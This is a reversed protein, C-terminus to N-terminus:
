SKLVLPEGKVIEFYGRLAKELVPHRFLSREPIDGMLLEVVVFLKHVAQYFGPALKPAPARRIAQQLNTHAATYDLQVAKIRGLYYHYRAYQSNPASAPFTTKSILKDAQDYLSYHLYSRLLRNILSAQTEDDHRLSATRQAALFLSSSFAATLLLFASRRFVCPRADSLEGGLEYARELAFWVKAAIPDLSRRNLSQIKQVTENALNIAESHTSPSILLNHLILLRFYIETEPVTESPPKPSPSPDVEM